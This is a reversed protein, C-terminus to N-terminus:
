MLVITGVVNCNLHMNIPLNKPLKIEVRTKCSSHELSVQAGAKLFSLLYTSIFERMTFYFMLRFDIGELLSKRQLVFDVDVEYWSAQSVSKHELWESAYCGNVFLDLDEESYPGFQVSYDEQATSSFPYVYKVKMAWNMPLIIKITTRGSSHNLIVDSASTLTEKYFEIVSKVREHFLKFLVKAEAEAAPNFDNCHESVHLDLEFYDAKLTSPHNLWEGVEAGSVQIEIKCNHIPQSSMSSSYTVAM